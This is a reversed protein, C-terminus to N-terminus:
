SDQKKNKWGLREMVLQIDQWMDKKLPSNEGGNRLIYSPHYVPMVPIGRFQFWRGRLRTIGENTGLLFKAAPGGVAVIVQPEILAIQELLFPHCAEIEEREPPRDKVFALDVTARCKVLNTIYIESRPVQMGNEIIRTLLAGAPGVFPRGSLDEQKGPGEGIFLLKADPNGEGPVTLSRSRALKCSQCLSIKTELEKLKEHRQQPSLTAIKEETAGRAGIAEGAEGSAKGAQDAGAQDFGTPDFGAQNTGTPNTRNKDSSDSQWAPQPDFLDYQSM